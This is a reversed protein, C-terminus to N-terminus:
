QWQAVNLIEYKFADRWHTWGKPGHTEISNVILDFYLPQEDIEIVVQAHTTTQGAKKFIAVKADPYGNDWCWRVLRGSARACPHKGYSGVCEFEMSPFEAYSWNGTTFSPINVRWRLYKRALDDPLTIRGASTKVTLHRLNIGACGSLVALLMALILVMAFLRREPDRGDNKQKKM